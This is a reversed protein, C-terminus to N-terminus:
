CRELARSVKEKADRGREVGVDTAKEKGRNM